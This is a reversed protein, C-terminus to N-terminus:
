GAADPRLFHLSVITSKLRSGKLDSLSQKLLGALEAKGKYQKGGDDIFDADAAVHALLRDLNGNNFAATYSDVAARVASAEDAPPPQGVALALGALAVVAIGIIRRMVLDGKAPRNSLCPEDVTAPEPRPCDNDNRQNSSLEGTVRAVRGVPVRVSRKANRRGCRSVAT